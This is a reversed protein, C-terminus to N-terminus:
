HNTIRLINGLHKSLNHYTSILNSHEDCYWFGYSTSLHFLGNDILLGSCIEVCCISFKECYRCKRSQKCFKTPVLKVIKGHPCEITTKESDDLSKSSDNKIEPTEAKTDTMNNM